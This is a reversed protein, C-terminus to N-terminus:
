LSWLNITLGICPTNVSGFSHRAWLAMDKHQTQATSTLYPGPIQTRPGDHGSNVTTITLLAKTQFVIPVLIYGHLQSRLIIQLRCITTKAKSM